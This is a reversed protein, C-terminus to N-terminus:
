LFVLKMYRELGQASDVIAGLVGDPRVVFIGSEQNPILYATHAHKEADKVIMMGDVNPIEAESDNSLAVVIRFIDAPYKKQKLADAIASVHTLATKGFVIITHHTASFIDFLRLITKQQVDFLGPADPARDGAQLFTKGESMGYADYPTAAESTTREDLVISSGRYNIGLMDFETKENFHKFDVEGKSQMATNM